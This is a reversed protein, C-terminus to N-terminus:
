HDGYSLTINPSYKGENEEGIREDIRVTWEVQWRDPLYPIKIIRLSTLRRGWEERNTPIETGDCGLLYKSM